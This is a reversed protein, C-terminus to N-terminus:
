HLIRYLEDEKKHACSHAELKGSELLELNDKIDKIRKM